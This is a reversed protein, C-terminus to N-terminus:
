WRWKVSWWSKQAPNANDSRGASGPPAAKPEEPAPQVAAQPQQVAAQRAQAVAPNPAAAAAGTLQATREAIEADIQAQQKAKRWPQEDEEGEEPPLFKEKFDPRQKLMYM